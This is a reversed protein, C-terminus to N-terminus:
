ILYYLLFDNDKVEKSGQSINGGILASNMNRSIIHSDTGM